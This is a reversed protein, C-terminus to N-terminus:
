YFKVEPKNILYKTTETKPYFKKEGALKDLLDYTFPDWSYNGDSTFLIVRGNQFRGGNIKGYQKRYTLENGVLRRAPKLDGEPLKYVRANSKQPVALLFLHKDNEKKNDQYEFVQVARIESELKNELVPQYKKKKGSYEIYGIYGTAMGFYIIQYQENFDIATVKSGMAISDLVGTNENYVYIFNNNGSWLMMKKDKSIFPNTSTDRSNSVAPWKVSIVPADDTTGQDMIVIDYKKISVFDECIQRYLDNNYYLKEKVSRYAARDEPAILEKLTDFHYVYALLFSSDLFMNQNKNEVSPGERILRAYENAAIKLTQKRNTELASITNRKDIQALSDSIEANRKDIQALSDSVQASRKGIQALSDSVQASRKDVQALSDSAEAKRKAIQASSDSAVAKRKAIQALSDSHIANNRSENAYQMQRFSIVSLTAFLLILGVALWKFFALRKAKKRKESLDLEESRNLFSLAQDLDVTFSKAWTKLIEDNKFKSKWALALALEPDRWLSGQKIGDVITSESVAANGLRQYMNARRVEDDAWIRLKDWVRMLSEHSIDIISNSNLPVHPPPMLFTRGPRRFVEVQKSIEDQTAGTLLCLDAISRPRRIGRVDAAKDTLAKFMLECTKQQSETTLEDYAEDAHLSLSSQMTGIKEYDEFDIPTDPQNREYWAEWTRMMAHQLIPLQDTDSNIDNLLRTVLRQSITAGSVAVPGTIAERIEDRTMRPVLYQGKNIAEPLGRFEACDGLFDARMTLLIYIPCEEQQAATLLVQIFHMADSKGLKNDKEYKSFRFLEEFQDVVILFNENAPLRADKYMQVLGNESRRLGTEIISEYPIDKNQTSDYLVGEKALKKTLYGIPNEGPQMLAVRWNSGVKMFGRYVSPLLGSKVLSSKGSGSAGIVALFRSEMLKKLLEDIQRSRGFFLYDESEEFARLGVFPNVLHTDPANSM